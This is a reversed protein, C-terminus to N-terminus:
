RAEHTENKQAEWPWCIGNTQVNIEMRTMTGRFGPGANREEEPPVMNQAPSLSLFFLRKISGRRFDSM